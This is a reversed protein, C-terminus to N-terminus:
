PQDHPIELGSFEVLLTGLKYFAGRHPSWCESSHYGHHNRGEITWDFGDLGSQDHREPMEWFRAKEVLKKLRVWDAETLSGEVTAAPRFHRKRFATMCIEHSAPARITHSQHVTANPVPAPGFGARPCAGAWWGPSAAGIPVFGYIGGHAPV